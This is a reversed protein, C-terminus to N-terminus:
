SKVCYLFHAGCIDLSCDAKKNCKVGRDVFSRLEFSDFFNTLFDYQDIFSFIYALMCLAVMYWAYALSQNEDVEGPQSEQMQTDEGM